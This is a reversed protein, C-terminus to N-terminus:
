ISAAWKRQVRELDIVAFGMCVAAIAVVLNLVLDFGWVHQRLVENKFAEQEASFPPDGLSKHAEMYAPIGVIISVLFIIQALSWLSAWARPPLTRAGIREWVQRLASAALFGGVLPFFWIGATWAPSVRIHSGSITEANRHVRSLWIPTLVALFVVAWLGPDWTLPNLLRLNGEIPRAELTEKAEWLSTAVLVTLPVMLAIAVAGTGKLTPRKRKRRRPVRAVEIEWSGTRCLTQSKRPSVYSPRFSYISTTAM